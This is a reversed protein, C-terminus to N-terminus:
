LLSSEYLHSAAPRRAKPASSAAHRPYVPSTYCWCQSCLKIDRMVAGCTLPRCGPVSGPGATRSPAAPSCFSSWCTWSVPCDSLPFAAPSLQPAARVNQLRRPETATAGCAREPTPSARDRCIQAPAAADYTQVPSQSCGQHPVGACAMLQEGVHSHLECPFLTCSM